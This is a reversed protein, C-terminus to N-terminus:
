VNPTEERKPQATIIATLEEFTLGWEQSLRQSVRGKRYEELDEPLLVPTGNKEM